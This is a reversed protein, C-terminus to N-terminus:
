EESWKRFLRLRLIEELNAKNQFAVEDIIKGYIKCNKLITEETAHFYHNDETRFHWEYPFRIEIIEGKKLRIKRKFKNYDGSTFFNSSIVKWLQGQEVKKM